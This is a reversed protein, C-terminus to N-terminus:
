YDKPYIKKVARPILVDINYSTNKIGDVSETDGRRLAVDVAKQIALAKDLPTYGYLSKRKRDLRDQWGIFFGTGGHNRGLGFTRCFYFPEGCKEYIYGDIVAYRDANIKIRSENEDRTIYDSTSRSIHWSLIGGDTRAGKYDTLWKDTYNVWLPGNDGDPMRHDNEYFSQKRDQWQRYLKGKYLRVLVEEREFEKVKFAVPADEAKIERINVTIVGDNFKVARPKRCRPPIINETYSFKITAKM